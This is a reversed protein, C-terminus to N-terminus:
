CSWGRTLCLCLSMMLGLALAVFAGGGELVYRFHLARKKQGTELDYVAIPEIVAANGSSGPLDQGAPLPARGVALQLPSNSYAVMPFRVCLEKVAVTVVQLMIGTNANQRGKILSNDSDSSNCITTAFGRPPRLAVCNDMKVTTSYTDNEDHILMHSHEVTHATERERERETHTHTYTHTHTDRDRQTHTHTHMQTHRCAHM